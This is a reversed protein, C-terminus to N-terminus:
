GLSLRRGVRPLPSDRRVSPGAPCSRRVRRAGPARSGTPSWPPRCVPKAKRASPGYHYTYRDPLPVAWGVSWGGLLALPQPLGALAPLLVACRGAENTQTVRVRMQGEIAPWNATVFAHFAAPDEVPGGLFRVVGFLLNPQRRSPPLAAVLALVEDDRSVANTLREYVSSVGHAERGAFQAYTAALTMGWHDCDLGLESEM